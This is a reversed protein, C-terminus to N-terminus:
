TGVNMKELDRLTHYANGGVALSELLATVREEPADQGMNPKFADKYEASLTTIPLTKLDPDDVMELSKRILRMKNQGRTIVPLGWGAALENEMLAQVQTAKRNAIMVEQKYWDQELFYQEVSKVSGLHNM